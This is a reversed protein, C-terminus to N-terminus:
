RDTTLRCLVTPRRRRAEVEAAVEQALNSVYPRRFSAMVVLTPAVPSRCSRIAVPIVVFRILSM